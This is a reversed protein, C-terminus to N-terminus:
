RSSGSASPWDEIEGLPPMPMGVVFIADAEEHANTGRNGYFHGHAGWLLASPRIPSSQLNQYGHKAILHDVIIKAQKTKETM